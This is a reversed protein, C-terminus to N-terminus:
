RGLMERARREVTEATLGLRAAVEPGPASAGFRDVGVVSGREGVYREWGLTRGAEVAVRASVTPPLVSSRYATSQQEFLEWSPMSVVRTRTGESALRRAADLALAVESGSAILILEPSPATDWLVYAGRRVGNAPALQTRDLTPL